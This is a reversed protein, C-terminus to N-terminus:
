FSPSYFRYSSNKKEIERTLENIKQQMESITNQQQEIITEQKKEKSQLRIYQLLLLYFMLPMKKSKERESTLLDLKQKQDANREKLSANEARLELTQVAHQHGSSIQEAIGQIATYSSHTTIAFPDLIMEKLIDGSNCLGGLLGDYKLGSLALPAEATNETKSCIVKYTENKPTQLLLRLDSFLQSIQNKFRELESPTLSSTKDLFAKLSTIEHLIYYLFSRRGSDSCQKILNGLKIKFHTDKDQIIKKACAISKEKLLEKDTESILKKVKPQSDRYRIIVAALSYILEELKTM